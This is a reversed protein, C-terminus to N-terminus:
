IEIAFALLPVTADQRTSRTKGEKGRNPGYCNTSLCCVTVAKKKLCSESTSFTGEEVLGGKRSPVVGCFNNM